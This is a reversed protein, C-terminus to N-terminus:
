RVSRWFERKPGIIAGHAHDVQGVPQGIAAPRRAM